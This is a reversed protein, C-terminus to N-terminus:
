DRSKKSLDRLNKSKDKWHLALKETRTLLKLLSAIIVM